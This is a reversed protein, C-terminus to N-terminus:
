LNKFNNYDLFDMVKQSVIIKDKRLDDLNFQPNPLNNEKAKQTYYDLREPHSPNVVNFVENMVKKNIIESLINVCDEQQILNVVAFPKEINPKKSLQFIPHRDPGILGGFRVITTAFHNNSQLINEVEVLQKGSETIPNRLTFETVLVETEDYVSTSSVFIVNKIQSKEIYPILTKIKEVFSENVNNRLKPPIAIILYESEALFADINGIITNPKLDICFAEIHHQQFLQIKNESTTSGKVRFGKKILDNALPFGLWGCGLISIKM